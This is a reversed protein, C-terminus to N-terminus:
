DQNEFPFVNYIFQVGAYSKGKIKKVTSVSRFYVSFAGNVSINGIDVSQTFWTSTYIGITVEVAEGVYVNNKNVTVQSFISAQQAWGLQVILNVVLIIIINRFYPAVM